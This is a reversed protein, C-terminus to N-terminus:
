NNKFSYFGGKYIIIHDILKIGIAKTQKAIKTTALVDAESPYTEGNPHNHILYFRHTNVQALEVIIERMNLEVFSSTGKYLIKEKVIRNKSDLMLLVLLEQEKNELYHYRVYVDESCLIPELRQYKSQLLRNHFEFTAELKLASIKSLGFQQKLSESKSKSLYFLSKYTKLLSAGIDLASQNKVGSGIIIALLEQDSLSEIGYILAKERPRAEQPLEKIKM